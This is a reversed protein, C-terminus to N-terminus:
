DEDVFSAESIEYRVVQIRNGTNANNSVQEELKEAPSATSRIPVNWTQELEQPLKGANPVANRVFALPAVGMDLMILLM